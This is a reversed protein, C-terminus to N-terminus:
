GSALRREEVQAGELAAIVAACRDAAQSYAGLRRVRHAERCLARLYRAARLLPVSPDLPSAGPLRRRALPIRTWSWWGVVALIMGTIVGEM